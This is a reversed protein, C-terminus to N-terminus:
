ASRRGDSERKQRKHPVSRRLRAEQKLKQYDLKLAKGLPLRRDPGLEILGLAIYDRLTKLSIKLLQAIAVTDLRTMMVENEEVYGQDRLVERLNVYGNEEIYKTVDLTM